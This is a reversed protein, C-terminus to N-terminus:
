ATCTCRRQIEAPVEEFFPQAFLAIPSGDNDWGYRTKQHRVSNISRLGWAGRDWHVNLTAGWGDVSSVNPGTAYTEYEDATLFASTYDPDTFANVMTVPHNAPFPSPTAALHHVGGQEHASTGDISLLVDVDERPTWALSGRVSSSDQNGTEGIKEGTAFDIRRGYGERNRVVGSLQGALKGPVIPGEISLRGDLRKFRGTTVEASGAFEDGPRKSVVSIAGGITNKGFLTGQPGRLVEIREIGVLDLDLGRLRPLYVGDLLVGVGPEFFLSADSSGVGRLHLNM